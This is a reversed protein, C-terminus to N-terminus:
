RIRVVFSNLGSAIFTKQSLSLCKVDFSDDDLYTMDDIKPYDKNKNWKSGVMVTGTGDRKIFSLFDLQKGKYKM